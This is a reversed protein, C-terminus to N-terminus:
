SLAADIKLLEISSTWKVVTKWKRSQYDLEFIYRGNEMTRGQKWGMGKGGTVDRVGCQTVAHSPRESPRLRWMEWRFLATTMQWVGRDTKAAQTQLLAATFSLLSLHRDPGMCKLACAYVSHTTSLSPHWTRKLMWLSHTCTVSLWDARSSLYDCLPCILKNKKLLCQLFVGSNELYIIQMEGSKKREQIERNEESVGNREETRRGEQREVKFKTKTQNNIEAWKEEQREWLSLRPSRASWPQTITFSCLRHAILTESPQIM